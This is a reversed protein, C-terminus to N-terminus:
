DDFDDKQEDDDISPVCFQDSVVRRPTRHLQDMEAEQEATLVTPSLGQGECGHKQLISMSYELGLPAILKGARGVRWVSCYEDGILQWTCGRKRLQASLFMMPALRALAKGSATAFGVDAPEGDDTNVALAFKSTVAHIYREVDNSGAPAEQLLVYQSPLDGAGFLLGRQGQLAERLHLDAASTWARRQREILVCCALLNRGEKMKDLSPAGGEFSHYDWLCHTDLERFAKLYETLYKDM